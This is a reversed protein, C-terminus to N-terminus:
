TFSLPINGGGGPHDNVAIFSSGNLTQRTLSLGSANGAFQLDGRDQNSNTLLHLVGVSTDFTAHSVDDTQSLSLSGFIGISQAGTGNVPGIVGQFSTPDLLILSGGNVTFHVPGDVTRVTAKDNEGQIVVSGKGNVQEGDLNLVNNGIAGMTLTGNITLHAGNSQPASVVSGDNDITSTNNLTLVSGLTHDIALSGHNANLGNILTVNSGSALMIKGFVVPGNAPFGTGVTVTNPSNAANSIFQLMPLDNIADSTGAFIYDKGDGQHAGVTIVGTPFLRVTSASPAVPAGITNQAYLALTFSGGNPGPTDESHLTFTGDANGGRLEETAGPAITGAASIFSPAAGGATPPGFVAPGFNPDYL